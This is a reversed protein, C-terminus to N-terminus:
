AEQGYKERLETLSKILVDLSEINKFAFLLDLHDVAAGSMTSGVPHAEDVEVFGLGRYIGCETVPLLGVLGDGFVVKSYVKM